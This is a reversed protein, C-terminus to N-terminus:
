VFVILIFTFSVAVLVFVWQDTLWATPLYTNVFNMVEEAPRTIGLIEQGYGLQQLFGWLSGVIL